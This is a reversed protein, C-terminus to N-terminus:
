NAGALVGSRAHRRRDGILSDAEAMMAEAAEQWIRAAGHRKAEEIARRRLVVEAAMAVVIPEDEPQVPVASVDDAPLTRTARYEVSWSEAAGLPRTLLLSGNWWRWARAEGPGSPGFAAAEPVLEGTADVVRLVRQRPLTPTVPISVQGATIPVAVTAELPVRAGFRVLSNWLAENLLVDDWLPTAGTDELKRRLALRLDLRTTMAIGKADHTM